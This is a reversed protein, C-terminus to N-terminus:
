RDLSARRRDRVLLTATGGAAALGLVILLLPEAGTFALDQPAAQTTGAVAPAAGSAGETTPAAGQDEETQTTSTPTTTTYSGTPVSTTYDGTTETTQATAVGAAVLLGAVMLLLAFRIRV